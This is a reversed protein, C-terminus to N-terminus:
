IRMNNACKIAQHKSYIKSCENWEYVQYIVVFRTYRGWIIHLINKHASSQETERTNLNLDIYM